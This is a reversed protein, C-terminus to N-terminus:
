LPNKPWLNEIRDAGGIMVRARENAPAGKADTNTLTSQQTTRAKTTNEKTAVVKADFKELANKKQVPSPGVGFLPTYNPDHLIWLNWVGGGPLIPSSSLWEFHNENVTFEIRNDEIVGVKQFEYGARPVLSFIFRGQNPVYFWLLTGACERNSKSTAIVSGNILLRYDKITLEVADLTFDRPLWRPDNDWIKSRDFTVRVLDVIKVGTNQNVMLDLSFADGDDLTQPGTTQPFTLIIEPQPPKGEDPNGARLKSEFLQDIPRVVIKFQKTAPNPAVWLDYGFVFRGGEDQLVRHIVRDGDVLAQSGLIAPARQTGTSTKKTDTWSTESKFAVFGGETLSVILPRKAPAQASVIGSWLLLCLAAATGPKIYGKSKM